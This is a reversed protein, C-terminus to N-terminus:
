FSSGTLRLTISGKKGYDHPNSNLKSRLYTPTVEWNANEDALTKPFRPYSGSSFM